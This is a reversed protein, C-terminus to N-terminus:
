FRSINEWEYIFRYNIESILSPTKTYLISIMQNIASITHHNNVLSAGEPVDATNQCYFTM